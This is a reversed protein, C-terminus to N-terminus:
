RAAWCVGDKDPLRRQGVGGFPPYPDCMLAGYCTVRTLFRTFGAVFDYLGQPYRGTIVIAFWAIVVAISGVLAYIYLWIGVPIILLLRFFSSLRSRREIYDAEFTVPYSV